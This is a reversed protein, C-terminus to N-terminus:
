EDEPLKDKMGIWNYSFGFSTNEKKMTIRNLARNWTEDRGGGSKREKRM